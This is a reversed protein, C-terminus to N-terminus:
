EWVEALDIELAPLLSSRARTNGSHSAALRYSGLHLEYIELKRARPDVIWYHPVRYRTYLAKKLKRDERITGPSLVEVLLDPAGLIAADALIAERAASVFLLDPQVVTKRALVVDVPAFFIQGLRHTAVHRDLIRALNRLVAQHRLTPAPSVFVEGDLIQYRKGDNPFHLYDEYTVKVPSASARGAVASM